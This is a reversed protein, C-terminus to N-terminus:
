RRFVLGYEKGTESEMCFGLREYLRRAPNGRLVSLRVAVGYQKADELLVRLLHQGIGQGQFGPLIQIQVLVWEQASRCVKMLGVRVDGILVIQADTYCYRVRQLHADDDTAEGVRMLHETMVQKRLDLLFSEDSQRAPRLTIGQCTM